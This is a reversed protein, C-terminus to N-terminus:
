KVKIKKTVYVTAIKDKAYMTVKYIGSKKVKYSRTGKSSYGYKKVTKNGQRIVYKYKISGSGPTVSASMKIKKGTAKVTFSNYTFKTKTIKFSVNESVTKEDTTDKATVTIKYTGAVTPKWVVKSNSSYFNQLQTVKKTSTNTVYMLYNYNGSGGTAKANITIPTKVTQSSSKNTTITVALQEANTENSNSNNNAIAGNSVTNATATPTNSPKVTSTPTPTSTGASSAPKPTGTSPTKTPEKTEEVKETEKPEETAPDETKKDDDDDPEPTSTVEPKPTKVVDGGQAYVYTVESSEDFVGTANDPEEVLTYGDIVAPYTTYKKGIVGVRYISKLENGDQDVYKITVKGPDGSPLETLENATKDYLMTGKALLGKAKDPTSRWTGGTNSTAGLSLIILADETIDESSYSWYESDEDETMVPGPWVGAYATEAADNSYIFINPATAFDSKKVKVCFVGDSVTPEKSRQYTVEKKLESGDDESIGTVTITTKEDYATDGGITIVDGATYEKKEGGNIQYYTDKAKNAKLTIDFTDSIADTTIANVIFYSDSKTSLM